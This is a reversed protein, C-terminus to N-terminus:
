DFISLDELISKPDLEPTDDSGEAENSAAIPLAVTAARFEERVVKRINNLSLSPAHDQNSIQNIVADVIFQNRSRGLAILFEAAQKEDPNDMRFRVNIRYNDQVTKM